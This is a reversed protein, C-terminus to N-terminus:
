HQLERRSSSKVKIILYLYNPVSKPKDTSTDRRQHLGFQYLVTLPQKEEQFKVSFCSQFANSAKSIKPNHFLFPDFCVKSSSLANGTVSDPQLKTLVTSIATYKLECHLILEHPSLCHLSALKVTESATLTFHSILYDISM